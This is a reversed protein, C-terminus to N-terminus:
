ERDYPRPLWSANVLSEPDQKENRRALRFRELCTRLAEESRLRLLKIPADCYYTDVHERIVLRLPDGLIEREIIVRYGARREAM